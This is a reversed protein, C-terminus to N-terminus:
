LAEGYAETNWQLDIDVTEGEAAPSGKKTNKNNREKEQGYNGDKKDDLCM